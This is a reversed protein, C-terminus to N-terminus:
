PHSAPPRRRGPGRSPAPQCSPRAGASPARPPPARASSCRTPSRPLGAPLSAACPAAAAPAPAAEPGSGVWASLWTSPACGSAGRMRQARRPRTWVDTGDPRALHGQPLPPCSCNEPLRVLASGRRGRGRGRFARPARFRLLASHPEFADGAPVSRGETAPVPPGRSQPTRCCTVPPDPVGLSPGAEGLRHLRGEGPM